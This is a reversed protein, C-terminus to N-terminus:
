AARRRKAGEIESDHIGEIADQVESTKSSIQTKGGKKFRFDCYDCGDGITQTRVLGWGLADSLAIDSMCIYPAFDEGGHRLMFKQNGCNLYNVGWDFDSGKGIVYEVQFDGFDVIQRQRARRTIINRVLSSHMLRGLLWRKWRPIKALRLRLAQHCLEWAEVPPKGRKKMAKYAALEQATVLLFTNMSRSRLGTIHPIEPILREYEEFVERQLTSAFKEDYRTVLWGKVM